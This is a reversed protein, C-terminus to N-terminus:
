AHKGPEPTESPSRSANEKLKEMHLILADSTKKLLALEDM